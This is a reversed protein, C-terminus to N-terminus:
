VRILIFRTKEMCELLIQDLHHSMYIRKGRLGSATFTVFEAGNRLIAANWRKRVKRWRNGTGM